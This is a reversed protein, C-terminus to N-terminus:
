SRQAQHQVIRFLKVPWNHCHWGTHATIIMRTETVM